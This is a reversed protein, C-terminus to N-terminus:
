GDESGWKDDIERIRRLAYFLFLVCRLSMALGLLALVGLVVGLLELM